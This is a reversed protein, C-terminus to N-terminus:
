LSFESSLLPCGVQLASYKTIPLYKGQVPFFLVDKDLHPTHSSSPTLMEEVCKLPTPESAKESSTSMM